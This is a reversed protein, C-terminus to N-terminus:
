IMKHIANVPCDEYCLGCHLCHVQQITYVQDKYICQQPCIRQCKGCKICEKGIVYGRKIEKEEGLSFYMRCIPNQSLDFYELEGKEICFAELIYRSEQPYVSQMSPNDIFIRDIWEKQHNLKEVFGHLRIMEYNQTLGTIAIYPNIILERYFEKGRATCFVLKKSDVYMVDIIRVRPHGNENITAISVDKIQRLLKLCGSKNM